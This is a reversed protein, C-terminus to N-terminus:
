NFLKKFKNIVSNYIKKFINLEKVTESVQVKNTYPDWIGLMIITESVIEAYMDSLYYVTGKPILMTYIKSRSPRGSLRPVKTYSHYGSNIHYVRDEDIYYPLLSVKSNLENEKYIYDFIPSMARKESLPELEKYVIFDVEAVKKNLNKSIFCM